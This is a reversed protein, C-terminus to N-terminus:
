MMDTDVPKHACAVSATAKPCRTGLLGEQEM